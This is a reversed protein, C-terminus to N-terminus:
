WGRAIDADPQHPQETLVVTDNVLGKVGEVGRVADDLNWRELDSRVSGALTVVGESARVEINEAPVALLRALADQVDHQLDTDSKM